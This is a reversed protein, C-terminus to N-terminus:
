RNPIFLYSFHYSEVGIIDIISQAINRFIYDFISFRKKPPYVIKPEGKVGGIAAALSIADQLNGLTDILGLEKAQEGSFIRGDSIQSVKDKKIKREQAIAEVFQNHVNDIVGQLLKREDPTISRFPSMVDKHKGSKIVVSEFGIKKMLEELNAFEVIVGISGTITGPNAVIRDAACAIYYGGSAAISGMSVVIKKKARFKKIEEYIEQSPGVSGGPSDIRLVVAKVRKDKKFQLLQDIVNKSDRIIGQVNIVAIRDGPTFAASRGTLHTITILSVLFVALIVGVIILGLLVPHRKM